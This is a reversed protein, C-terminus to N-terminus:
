KPINLDEPAPGHNADAWRTSAQAAVEDNANRVVDRCKNAYAVNEERLALVAPDQDIHDMFFTRCEDLSPTVGSLQTGHGSFSPAMMYTAVVLAGIITAAVVIRQVAKPRKSPKTM